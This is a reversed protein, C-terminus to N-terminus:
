LPTFKIAKLMGSGGCETCKVADSPLDAGTKVETTPSLYGTGKCNGCSNQYLVQEWLTLHQPFGEPTKPAFEFSYPFKTWEGSPESPWSQPVKDAIWIEFERLLGKGNCPQCEEWKTPPEWPNEPFETAIQGAGGCDKHLMDYWLEVLLLQYEVKRWWEPGANEFEDRVSM